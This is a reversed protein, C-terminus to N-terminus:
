PTARAGLSQKVHDFIRRHIALNSRRDSNAEIVYPCDGSLANELGVSFEVLSNARAYNLGFMTAADAFRYGHPTGFYEEFHETQEVIPLFHFIGGGDNNIIILIVKQSSKALLSLSNLDHLAALDGILAVTSQGLGEAFGVATAITGDIGSAGRNAAVSVARDDPWFGFADMDRIPMSNGLFLGHDCPVIKAIQHAIAPESLARDCETDFVSLAAQQAAVSGANWRDLYSSSSEKRTRVQACLQPVDGVYKDTVQGNPDVPQDTEALHWYTSPRAAKLFQLLRKSTMRRGIHIVSDPNWESGEDIGALMLDYATDRLGSTVDALCPCGLRRALERAAHAIEPRCGGVLVLTKGGPFEHKSLISDTRNSLSEARLEQRKKASDFDPLEFDADTGDFPEAFMCNIHVPGHSAQTFLRVMQVQASPLDGAVKGCELDVFARPYSGFIEAQNITQNSGTERLSAPRDATLLVMPVDEYSAEIVAPLANAVATGSTCVFVGPRNTARGYGVCQFALGREDFHQHVCIGPDTQGRHAIAMTLPTCRSGPAVFFDTVGLDRLIHIAATAWTRNLIATNDPLTAM